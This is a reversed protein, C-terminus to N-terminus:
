GCTENMLNKRYPTHREASLPLYDTGVLTIKQYGQNGKRNLCTSTLVLNEDLTEHNGAFTILNDLENFLSRINGPWDYEMFRSTTDTDLKRGEGRNNLHHRILSPIDEKHDRLPPIEIILRNIRNYFDSRMKGQELLIDLSVNSATILKFCSSTITDSGMHRFKGTELLRLLKGQVTLDLVEVEDLFLTSQDAMLVLGDRNERADTFAGRVHGFLRSDHLGGSFAACNEVVMPKKIGTTMFLLEAVIEKGTGSEGNVHIATFKGDIQNITKRVRRMAASDGVLISAFPDKDINMSEVLASLEEQSLHGKLPDLGALHIVAFLLDKTLFPKSLYLLHNEIIFKTETKPTLPSVLFIKKAQVQHFALDELFVALTPEPFNEDIVMVPHPDKALSSQIKMAHDMTIASFCSNSLEHNILARLKVDKTFLYLSM